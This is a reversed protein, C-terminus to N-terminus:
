PTLDAPDTLPHHHDACRASVPPWLEAWPHAAELQAALRLLTGEAGPQGMFNMGIPLSDRSWGLPVSMAPRGTLNATVLPFAVFEASRAEARSPDEADAALQGLRPPPEALTPSLWVDFGDTGDYAAALARGFAQVTTLAMLLDGGRVERGREWYLRTLPELEQPEPLRGTERAWYRIVWDLGAGYLRGIASGVEPTLETLEREVVTHGLDTLRGATDDLVGLCDVHVPRGEAPCRSVAIRLPEPPRDLEGLWTGEHHPAFYPDGPAPGATVDLLAASDRVSRTLVHEAAMGGFVDGYRPGLPNRGRTPKLGFIGCCSAPIRLSGGVDNGHAVPVMGSAVAAASGGSSGGTTCTTDWPNVTPLGDQPEVTPAMGFEPTSTKGLVVFGARRLRAVYEQDHTSVVGRLYASGERMPLGEVEACLDKVLTPVGAFPLAPDLTRATDVARDFDTVVLAHLMPDLREIRNIADLVLDVPRLEGAHVLAAQAVADAHGTELRADAPM